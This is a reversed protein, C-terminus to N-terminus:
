RLFRLTRPSSASYRLVTFGIAFMPVTTSLFVSLFCSFTYVSLPGQPNESRGRASREGYPVKANVFPFHAWLLDTLLELLPFQMELECAGQVSLLDGIPSVNEM